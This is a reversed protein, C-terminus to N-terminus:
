IIRLTVSQMNGPKYVSQWSSQPRHIHENAEATLACDYISCLLSVDKPDTTPVADDSLASSASAQRNPMTVPHSGPLESMDTTKRLTHKRM